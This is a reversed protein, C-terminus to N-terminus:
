KGPPLLRNNALFVIVFTYLAMSEILFITLLAIGRIMAGAGPNRAIGEAAGQVARAQALGCLGSAIAMGVCALGIAIPTLDATASPASSAQAFTPMAFVFLALFILLLKGNKM